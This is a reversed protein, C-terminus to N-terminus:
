SMGNKSVVWNTVFSELLQLSSYPEAGAGKQGAPVCPLVGFTSGFALFRHGNIILQQVSNCSPRHGPQVSTLTGTLPSCTDGHLVALQDNM